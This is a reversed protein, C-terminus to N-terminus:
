EKIRRIGERQIEKKSNEKIKNNIYKMKKDDKQASAWNWLMAYTKKIDEKTKAWDIANNVYTTFKTYENTQKEKIDYLENTQKDPVKHTSSGLLKILYPVIEEAKKESFVWDLRKPSFSQLLNDIVKPNVNWKKMWLEDLNDWNLASSIFLSLKSVWKTDNAWAWETYIKNWYKLSKNNTLEILEKAVPPTLRTLIARAPWQAFDMWAVEKSIQNFMDTSTEKDYQIDRAFAHLIYSLNFM